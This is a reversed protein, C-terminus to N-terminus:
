DEAPELRGCPPGCTRPAFRFHESDLANPPRGRLTGGIRPLIACPPPTPPLAAWFGCSIIDPWRPANEAIRAPTRDQRIGFIAGTLVEGRALDVSLRARCRQRKARVQQDRGSDQSPCGAFHLMSILPLAEIDRDDGSRPGRRRKRILRGSRRDQTPCAGFRGALTM